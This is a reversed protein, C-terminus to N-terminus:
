SNVKKAEDFTYALLPKGLMNKINKKSISKSGGRAPTISLIKQNNFM